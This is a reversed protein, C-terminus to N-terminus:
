SSSPPPPHCTSPPPLSSPLLFPTYLFPFSLPNLYNVKYTYLLTRHKTQGERDQGSAQGNMRCHRRLHPPPSTNLHSNQGNEQWTHREKTAGLCGAAATSRSSSVCHGPLPRLSRLRARRGERGQKERDIRARHRLIQGFHCGRGGGISM